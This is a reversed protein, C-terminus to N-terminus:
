NLLLYSILKSYGVALKFLHRTLSLNEILRQFSRQVVHLLFKSVIQSLVVKTAIM